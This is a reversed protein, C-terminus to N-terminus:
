QRSTMTSNSSWRAPWEAALCRRLRLLRPGAAAPAPSCGCRRPWRGEGESQRRPRAPRESRLSARRPWPRPPRTSAMARWTPRFPSARRASRPRTMSWRRMSRASACSRSSMARRHRGSGTRAGAGQMVERTRSGTANNAGVSTETATSRYPIVLVPGSIAQPGGWGETISARAEESQSQRDYVLLWVLFLPIALAMGVLIALLLKRGPSKQEDSAYM